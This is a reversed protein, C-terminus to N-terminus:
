HEIPLRNISWDMMGRTVNYIDRDRPLEDIRAQLMGVPILVSGAIHADTYEYTERVDLVFPKNPQTLRTHLERADIQAPKAAVGDAEGGFLRRLFNM